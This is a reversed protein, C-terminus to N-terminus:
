KFNKYSCSFLFKKLINIIKGSLSATLLKNWLLDHDVTDFASKFDVFLAYLKGEDKRLHLQIISNLTFVNDLYGRGARFGAQWEPIKNHAECWKTIRANLCQTFLKALCSVLAIPRYSNVSDINGKKKYIMKILINSWSVPTKEIQLIKNFM